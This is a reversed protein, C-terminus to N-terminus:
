TYKSAMYFLPHVKRENGENSNSLTTMKHNVSHSPYVLVSPLVLAQRVTQLLYGEEMRSLLKKSLYLGLGTGESSGAILKTFLM